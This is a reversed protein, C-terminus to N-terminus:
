NDKKNLKYQLEVITPIAQRRSAEANSHMSSGVIFLLVTFIYGVGSISIWVPLDMSHFLSYDSSIVKGLISVSITIFIVLAIFNFISASITDFHARRINSEQIEIENELEMKKTYLDFEALGKAEIEEFYQVLARHVLGVIRDDATTQQDMYYAFSLFESSHLTFTYPHKKKIM